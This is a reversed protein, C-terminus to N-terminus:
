YKKYNSISQKIKTIWDGISRESQEDNYIPTIHKIPTNLIIREDYVYFMDIIKEINDKINKKDADLVSPFAKLFIKTDVAENYIGELLGRHQLHLHTRTSKSIPINLKSPAPYLNLYDDERDYDDDSFDYIPHDYYNVKDLFPYDLYLGDLWIYKQTWERQIYEGSEKDYYNDVHEYEAVVNLGAKEIIKIADSVLEPKDPKANIITNLEPIVSRIACEYRLIRFDDQARLESELLEAYLTKYCNHITNDEDIM